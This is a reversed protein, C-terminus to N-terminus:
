ARAPERRRSSTLRPCPAGAGIARSLSHALLGVLARVGQLVVRGGHLRRKARRSGGQHRSEVAASTFKRIQESIVSNAAAPVSQLVTDPFSGVLPDRLRRAALELLAVVRSSPVRAAPDQLVAATLGVSASLAAPDAGLKRLAELLDAVQTTGVTSGM